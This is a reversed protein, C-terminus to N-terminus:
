KEHRYNFIIAGLVVLTIGIAILITLTEGLIIIGLITTVVPVFSMIVATLMKGIYNIAVQFCFLGVISPGIAQFIGHLLVIDLSTNDIESPLLFLWFCFFIIGNIPAIVVLVEIAKLKLHSSYVMYFSIILTSLILLATGFWQQIHHFGLNHWGILLCGILIICFAIIDKQSIHQRHLLWAFFSTIIPITGNMFVSAHAASTYKFGIMAPLAYPVGIGAAIVLIQKINLQRPFYKWIFPSVILGALMYRLMVIDTEMLNHHNIGLRSLVIWHSWLFLVIFISLFGIIKKNIIM